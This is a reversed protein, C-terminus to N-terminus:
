PTPGEALKSAKPALPRLTPFLIVDRISAANGLLMALRDLGMGMGGTPPLGYNLANIYDEDMCHAEGDGGERQAVQEEFRLRQDAPDSLESFANALEWGNVYTEFREALLPNNRHV